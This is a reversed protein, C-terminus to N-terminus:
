ARQDWLQRVIQAHGVHLATHELAHFLSWGVNFERHDHNPSPLSKSLDELTLDNLAKQAYTLSEALRARLEDVTFGSVNFENARVRGSPDGVGMDGIWYRMTGCTHVVLVCLSNMDDGPVWDLAEQPLGDITKELDKFLDDLRQLFDAFVTHM